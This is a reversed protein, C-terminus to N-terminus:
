MRSLFIGIGDSAHSQGIILTDGGKFISYDYIVNEIIITDSSLISYPYRGNKSLPMLSDIAAGNSVDVQIDDELIRWKIEAKDFFSSGLFGNDFQYVYWVGQLGKNEMNKHCSIFISCLLVLSMFVKM